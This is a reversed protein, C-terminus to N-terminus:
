NISSDNSPSQKVYRQFGALLLMGVLLGLVSGGVVDSFWHVGLFVRSMAIMAIMVLFTRKLYSSFMAHSSYTQHVLYPLLFFLIAANFAHGSPFTYTTLEPYFPALSVPRILAFWHKFLINVVLFPASILGFLLVRTNKLYFSAHIIYAAFCSYVTQGNGILTFGYWFKLWPRSASLEMAKSYVWNDLDIVWTNQRILCIVTFLVFFLLFKAYSRRM